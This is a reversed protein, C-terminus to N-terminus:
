IAFKLISPFALIQYVKIGVGVLLDVLVFKMKTQGSNFDDGGILSDRKMAFDNLGLFM